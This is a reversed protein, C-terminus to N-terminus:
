VQETWGAEIVRKFYYLFSSYIVVSSLFPERNKRWAPQLEEEGLKHTQKIFFVSIQM